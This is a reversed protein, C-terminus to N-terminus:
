LALRTTSVKPLAGFNLFLGLPLDMLRLYTQFQKPHVPHLTEMSKLEVILEKDVLFDLRFGEDLVMGQYHIPVARQHEIVLGKKTLM